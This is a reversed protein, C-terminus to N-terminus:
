TFGDIRRSKERWLGPAMGTQKKFAKYFVTTDHYGIEDAIHNLTHDTNALLEKARTIRINKLYQGPTQGSYEKVTRNIYETSFHFRDALIDCTIDRGYHESIYRTIQYALSSSEEKHNYFTITNLISLFLSQCNLIDYTKNKHCYDLQDFLPKMLKIDYTGKRHLIVDPIKLTKSEAPSDSLDPAELANFHIYFYVPAPCGTRGQQFLEPRQLYWEGKNLVVETGDEWFVLTRELVFILVYFDCIRTIHKEDKLFYRYSAGFFEPWPNLSLKVLNCANSDM